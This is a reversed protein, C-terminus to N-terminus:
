FLLCYEQLAKQCSMKQQLMLEFDIVHRNKNVNVTYFIRLGNNTNAERYRLGYELLDQNIPYAEPRDILVNKIKM